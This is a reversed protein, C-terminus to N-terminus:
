KKVCKSYYEGRMKIRHAALQFTSATVIMTLQKKKSRLVYQAPFIDIKWAHRDFVKCQFQVHQKSNSEIM